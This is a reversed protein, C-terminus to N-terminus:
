VIVLGLGVSATPRTKNRAALFAHVQKDSADDLQPFLRRTEELFILKDLMYQHCPPFHMALDKKRRVGSHIELVSEGRSTMRVRIHAYMTANTKLYRLRPIFPNPRILIDGTYCFQYAPDDPTITPPTYYNINDELMDRLNNELASVEGLLIIADEGIVDEWFVESRPGRRSILRHALMFAGMFYGFYDKDPFPPLVLKSKDGDVIQGKKHLDGLLDLLVVTGIPVSEDLMSKQFIAHIFHYLQSEWESSFHGDIAAAIVPTDSKRLQPLTHDSDGSSSFESDTSFSRSMANEDFINTMCKAVFFAM